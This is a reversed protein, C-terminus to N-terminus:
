VTAPAAQQKCVPPRERRIRQRGRLLRQTTCCLPILRGCTECRAKRTCNRWLHGKKLCGKSLRLDAVMRKREQLPMNAVQQCSTVAHEGQCKVCKKMLPQETSASFTRAESSSKKTKKTSLSEGLSQSHKGAHEVSVDSGVPGCAIRAVVSVFRVFKAFPPYKSGDKSKNGYVWDDVLRKWRDAVYKPLKKLM